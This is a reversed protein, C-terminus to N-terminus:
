QYSSVQEVYRDLLVSLDEDPALMKDDLVFDAGSVKNIAPIRILGTNWICISAVANSSELALGVEGDPEDADRSEFGVKLFLKSLYERRESYWTEVQQVRTM